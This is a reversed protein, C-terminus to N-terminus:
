ASRMIARGRRLFPLNVTEITYPDAYTLESQVALAINFGFGQLDAWARGLVPADWIFQDWVGIDWFAGVGTIDGSHEDSPVLNGDGYSYEARYTIAESASTAADAEMFAEPWIYNYTADPSVFHTIFWAEIAEGDHSTGADLQYVYGDEAGAFLIENGLDDEGSCACTVVIPLTFPTIEPFKRGLYVSVGSGDDFFFRIQNKSKVAISASCVVGAAAKSRFLPAVLESVSGMSWDGFNQSADLRRIGRDDQFYPTQGVMVVSDEKAGSTTSIDRMALDDGTSGTIYSIKTSGTLVMATSAGEVM